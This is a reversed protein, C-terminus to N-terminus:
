SSKTLNSYDYEQVSKTTKEIKIEFGTEITNTGKNNTELSKTLSKVVLDKEFDFQLIIENKENAHYAFTFVNGHMYSKITQSSYKSFSSYDIVSSIDIPLFSYNSSYNTVENKNLDVYYIQNGIYEAYYDEKSVSRKQADSSSHGEHYAKKIISRTFRKYVGDVHITEYQESYDAYSDESNKAEFSSSSYGYSEMLLNSSLTTINQTTTSVFYTSVLETMRAQLKASCVDQPVESNEYSKFDIERFRAGSCSSLLLPIFATFVILKNKDM